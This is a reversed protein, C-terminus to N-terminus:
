NDLQNFLGKIFPEFKNWKESSGQYIKRRVQNTSATKVIRKNKEPSLCEEQWRLELYKILKKIEEEQNITLKDYNLTYIKESYQDEWFTMLDKYLKYYAVIDKLDYSYLCSVKSSFFQKFNGWCLAASNRKVHIIKAEPFVSCILGIYRFNQPMKDTIIFNGNSVKSLKEFYTKRFNLLINDDVKSNGNFIEEAFDQVYPLEGAGTVKSHSSIIQEILSTGSRPMGVIFIPRIENLSNSIQLTNEKISPHLKKIQEFFKIDKQISYDLYSKRLANGECYYQFSKDIENLNESIWALAFCLQCRQNNTLNKNFYLNQMQTYYKEKKDFKELKSLQFYANILNPKIKIAKKYNIESEKTRQLESLLDGLGLYAEAYNPNIELAKIYNKESVDFKDLQRLTYGFNKYAEAYDPKLKIAKKYNIEAEEFKYTSELITGLNNYAFIYKPNLKIAKKYEIEAEDYRKLAQFIIGLNNHFTAFDPKLEIAKISIIEALKFQSDKILTTIYSIWFKEKIPDVETSIKFLELANEIKNKSVMVHGLNHNTEAHSPHIKLIERYFHQAEELKGKKQAFYGQQLMEDITQTM